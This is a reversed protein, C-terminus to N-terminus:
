LWTELSRRACNFKLYFTHKDLYTVIEIHLMYTCRGSKREDLVKSEVTHAFLEHGM